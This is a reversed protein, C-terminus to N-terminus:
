YLSKCIECLGDRNKGRNIDDGCIKCKSRIQLAKKYCRFSCYFNGTTSTRAKKFKMGCFLCVRRTDRKKFEDSVKHRKKYILEKQKQFYGQLRCKDSCYRKSRPSDKGLIFTKGCMKCKRKARTKTEYEKISKYYRSLAQCKKCCFLQRNCHFDTIEFPRGCFKCKKKKCYKKSQLLQDTEKKRHYFSKRLCSFCSNQNGSYTHFVAGCWRCRRTKIKRNKVFAYLNNM